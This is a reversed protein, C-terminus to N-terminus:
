FNKFVNKKISKKGESIKHNFEGALADIKEKFEDKVDEAGDEMREIVPRLRSEVQRLTKLGKDKMEVLDDGVESIKEKSLNYTDKATQKIKKRTDEGSSPAFLVGMVAGLAAGILAGAVFQKEKNNKCCECM